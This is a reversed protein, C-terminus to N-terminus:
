AKVCIELAVCMGTKEPLVSRPPESFQQLFGVEPLNKLPEPNQFNLDIFSGSDPHHDLILSEHLYAQM